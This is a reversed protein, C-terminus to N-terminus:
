SQAIIVSFEIRLRSFAALCDNFLEFISSATLTSSRCSTSSVSLSVPHERIGCASSVAVGVVELRCLESLLVGHSSQIRGTARRLIQQMQLRKRSRSMLLSILFLVCLLLHLFLSCCGVCHHHRFKLVNCVVEFVDFPFVLSFRSSIFVNLSRTTM